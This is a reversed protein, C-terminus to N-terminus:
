FLKWTYHLHNPGTHWTQDTVRLQIRSLLGCRQTRCGLDNFTVRFAVFRSLRM